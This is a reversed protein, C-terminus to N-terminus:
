IGFPKTNLGGSARGGAQLGPQKAEIDQHKHIATVHVTPDSLGKAAPGRPMAKRSESGWRGGSRSEWVVFPGPFNLCISLPSSFSNSPFQAGM